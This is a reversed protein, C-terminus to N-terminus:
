RRKKNVLNMAKDTNAFHLKVFQPLVERGKKL